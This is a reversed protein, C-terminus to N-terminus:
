WPDFQHRLNPFLTKIMKRVSISRDTAFARIDIGKSLLFKILRECAKVEMQGSSNVQFLINDEAMGKSVVGMYSSYWPSPLGAGGGRGGYFARKM